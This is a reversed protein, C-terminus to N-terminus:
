AGARGNRGRTPRTPAPPPQWKAREAALNAQSAAMEPAMEELKTCRRSRRCRHRGCRAVDGCLARQLKEVIQWRLADKEAAILVGPKDAQSQPPEVAPPTPNAAERAAYIADMQRVLDALWGNDGAANSPSPQDTTM